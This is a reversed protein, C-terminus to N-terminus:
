RTMRRVDNLMRATADADCWASVLMDGEAAQPAWARVEALKDAPVLGLLCQRGNPNENPPPRTTCGVCSLTGLTLTLWIGLRRRRMARM